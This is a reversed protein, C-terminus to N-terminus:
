FVCIISLLTKGFITGNKLYLRFIHHLWFPRLFHLRMRKAHQALLAVLAFACVCARTGVDVCGSARACVCFYIISVAKGRYCNNRAHAKTNREVYM